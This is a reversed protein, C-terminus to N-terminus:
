KGEKKLYRENQEKIVQFGKVIDEKCLAIEKSSDYDRLPDTKDACFVIMAYPDTSTGLVHHYIANKIEPDHFYFIRDVIESGVFGHWVPVPYKKNMPCIIDMWAEMHQKDMAKAIDHFLGIYFAKQGNLGNALAMAESLHAVSVSHRYRHDNVREKVFSKVYLRKEYMYDLVEPPLYNLKNGKRIDSSSVPMIPMHIREIDYPTNSLKGNRDICVFHCLQVLKDPEKWEDFQELQDNGILWYFEDEPYKMKLEKVTDITYSKGNREMELTCLHFRTDMACVRKVMETRYVSPTLERDKLPTYQTPMFWVQECQLQQLATQAMAIHGYHIPDFSGGIIAIKM